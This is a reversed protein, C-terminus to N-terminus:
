VKAGGKQQKKNRHVLDSISRICWPVLKVCLWLAALLALIGFILLVVGIGILILGAGVSAFLTGIGVGICAIGGIIFGVAMGWSGLILGVLLGFAGMVAGVLTGGVPLWVPSAFLAVVIILFISLGKNNEYFSRFGNEIKHEQGKKQNNEGKQESNNKEKTSAKTLDTVCDSKIISAIKEPSELEQIIKAENEQGADEFYNRYYELAERREDGPVDLLLAELKMLFEEKNM